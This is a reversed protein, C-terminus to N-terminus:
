YIKKCFTVRDNGPYYYDSIRAVEKFGNRIYFRQTREYQPISSTDALIMRGGQRKVSEELFSLLNSGIGKNQWRPNVAIWYLDFTGETMPAPGYCIYGVPKDQGDVMCYIFYDKQDKNNLVIDIIEMAVDIEVQTFVKSDSLISFLISRDDKRLPRIDM